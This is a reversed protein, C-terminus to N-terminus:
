LGEACIKCDHVDLDQKICDSTLTRDGNAKMTERSKLVVAWEMAHHLQLHELLQSEKFGSIKGKCSKLDCEFNSHVKGIHRSVSRQHFPVNETRRQCHEYPCPETDHHEKLHTIWKDKRIFARGMCSMYPCKYKSDVCHVTAIHRQLDHNARFPTKHKCPTVTCVLPNLHINNLHAEFVNRSRHAAKSSCKFWTCKLGPSWQSSVEHEKLHSKHKEITEFVPLSSCQAWDCRLDNDLLEKSDADGILASSSCHDSQSLTNKLQMSNLDSQFHLSGSPTDLGDTHTTEVRRQFDFEHGDLGASRTCLSNSTLDDTATCGLVDVPSLSAIVEWCDSRDTDLLTDCPGLTKNPVVESADFNSTPGYQRGRFARNALAACSAPFIHTFLFFVFETLPYSVYVSLHDLWDYNDVCYFFSDPSQTPFLANSSSRPLWPIGTDPDPADASDTRNETSWAHPFGLSM